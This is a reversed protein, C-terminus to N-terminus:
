NTGVFVASIHCYLIHIYDYMCLFIIYFNIFNCSIKNYTLTLYLHM